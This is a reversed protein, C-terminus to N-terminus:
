GGVALLRQIPNFALSIAQDTKSHLPLVYNEENVLDWLRLLNEGTATALLGPGAWVV